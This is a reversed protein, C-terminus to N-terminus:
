KRPRRLVVIAPSRELLAAARPEHGRHAPMIAAGPERPQSGPAVRTEPWSGDLVLATPRRDSPRLSHSAEGTSGLTWRTQASEACQKRRHGAIDTPRTFRVASGSRHGNPGDDRCSRQATTSRCPGRSKTPCRTAGRSPAELLTAARAQVSRRLASRMSIQAARGLWYPTRTM